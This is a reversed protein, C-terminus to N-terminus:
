SIASFAHEPAVGECLLHDTGGTAPPPDVGFVADLAHRPGIAPDPRTEGTLLYEVHARLPGLGPNGRIRAVETQGRWFTLTPVSSVHYRAALWGERADEVRVVLVRDAYQAAVEELVPALERCPACEPKEFVILAPCGLARIRDLTSGSAHIPLNRVALM